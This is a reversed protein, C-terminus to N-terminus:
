VVLGTAFATGSGNHLLVELLGLGGEQEVELVFLFLDVGADGVLAEIVEVEIGIEGWEWEIVNYGGLFGGGVGEAEAEGVAELFVKANM